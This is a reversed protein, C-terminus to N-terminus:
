EGSLALSLISKYLMKSHGMSDRALLIFNEIALSKECIYVLSVLSAICGWGRSGRTIANDAMPEIQPNEPKQRGCM